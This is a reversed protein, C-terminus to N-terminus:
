SNPLSRVSALPIAGDIESTGVDGINFFLHSALLMITKEERETSHYKALSSLYFSSATKSSVKSKIM